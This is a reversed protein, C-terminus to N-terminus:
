KYKATNDQIKMRKERVKNNQAMSTQSWWLFISSNFTVTVQEKLVKLLYSIQQLATTNCQLSSNNQYQNWNQFISTDTDGAQADM